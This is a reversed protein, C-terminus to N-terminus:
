GVARQSWYEDALLSYLLSDRWAGNTFVHDRLRGDSRFGLREVGALSVRNDPGIAATIRHLGLKTFGFKIILQVADAAYGNLWYDAHVAAGLKAARVGSLGLRAFGVLLGDSPRCAALYYETRPTQAARVLVGTLMTESEERSRTDFSLTSTVRGDGILAHVRDLDDASFERLRVKQGTVSVPHISDCAM